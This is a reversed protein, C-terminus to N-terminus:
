PKQMVLIAETLQFTIRDGTIHPTLFQQVAEPAQLLMAKLRIQDKPSVHMRAAWSSFEIQKTMTEQHQLQFGAAAIADEWESLSLCRHHSPDRLKEFANIYQGAERQLRAKKGRLRSGPVINDVIALYGHPRLVRASEQLFRGIEGFHHAAIRCTVLHFVESKFPLAEADAQAVVLNTVGREVAQERTVQLMRPTLDTAVVGAVYPAFTFATHGAGTAVDLVYWDPQPTTLTLLRTLSDGKAHVKSTAYAEASRGFQTMIKEKNM